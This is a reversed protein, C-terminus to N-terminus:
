QREHSVCIWKFNKLFNLILNYTTEKFNWFGKISTLIHAVHEPM